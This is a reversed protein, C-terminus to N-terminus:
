AAAEETAGAVTALINYAFMVIGIFMLFFFLYALYVSPWTYDM